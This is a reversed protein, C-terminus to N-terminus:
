LEKFYPVDRYNTDNSRFRDDVDDRKEWSYRRRGTILKLFEELKQKKEESFAM